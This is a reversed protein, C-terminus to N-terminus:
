KEEGAIAAICKELYIKHTFAIIATRLLMKEDSSESGINDVSDKLGFVFQLMNEVELCLYDYAKQTTYTREQLRIFEYLDDLSMVSKAMAIFMLHVIQNRDYQKRVPNSILGKKVYNSIMSSTLTCEGLPALTEAIYKTAQELYLGVNPIENYRPLRFNAVSAAIQQKSEAKMIIVM